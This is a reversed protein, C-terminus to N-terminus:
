SVGAARARRTAEASVAEADEPAVAWGDWDQDLRETGLATAAADVWVLMAWAETEADATPRLDRALREALEIALMATPDTQM